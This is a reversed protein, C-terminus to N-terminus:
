QIYWNLFLRFTDSLIIWLVKKLSRLVTQKAYFCELVEDTIVSNRIEETTANYITELPVDVNVKLIDIKDADRLINCFM